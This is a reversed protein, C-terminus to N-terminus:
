GHAGGDALRRAVCDRLVGRLRHLQVRVHGAALSLRDAVEAAPLGDWYHLKLVEWARGHLGALCQRLALRESELDDDLEVQAAALSDLLAEDTIVARSRSRTRWHMKVRNRAIGLVWGTFSGDGRWDPFGRFAAVAVEQVLEDAAQRDSLLGHIYGAVAGQAQAWLLTFRMAAPQGDTPTTM